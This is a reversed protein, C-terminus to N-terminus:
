KQGRRDEHAITISLHSNRGRQHTFSSFPRTCHTPGSATGVLTKM